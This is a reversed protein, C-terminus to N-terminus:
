RMIDLLRKEFGMKVSRIFEDKDRVFMAHVYLVSRDDSIDLSLTGPTLSILNALLTIELDTKASLPVAIIGPRMYFTPTIVDYAVQINAKILEYLFYFIFIIIRPIRNFNRRSQQDRVGIWMIVYSLGFGFLFNALVFKGTLAVWALALLFNMLLQKIM